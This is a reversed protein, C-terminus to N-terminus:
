RPQHAHQQNYPTNPLHSGSPLTGSGNGPQLVPNTLLNTQDAEAPTVLATCSTPLGKGYTDLPSCTRNAIVYTIPM